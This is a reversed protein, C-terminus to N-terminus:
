NLNFIVENKNVGRTLQSKRPQNISKITMNSPNGTRTDWVQPGPKRQKTAPLGVVQHAVINWAVLVEEVLTLVSGKGRPTPPPPAAPNRLDM